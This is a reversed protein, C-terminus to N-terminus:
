GVCGGTTVEPRTLDCESRADTAIQIVDFADATRYLVILACAGLKKHQGSTLFDGIQQFLRFGLVIHVIFRYQREDRQNGARAYEGIQQIHEAICSEIHGAEDRTRDFSM